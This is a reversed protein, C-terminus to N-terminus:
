PALYLIAYLHQRYQLALLENRRNRGRPEHHVTLQRRLISCQEPLLQCREDQMRRLMFLWRCLRAVVFLMRTLPLTSSNFTASVIAGFNHGIEHAVVQWETRGATSVATGSVVSPSSGSAAQQCLTMLWAIGVESGTPCGSMLHWLGASDDGKDGRWQSFISLRDNLTVSESCAVNWPAAPDPTTPCRDHRANVVPVPM